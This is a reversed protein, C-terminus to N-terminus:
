RTYIKKHQFFEIKSDDESKKMNTVIVNHVALGMCALTETSKLVLDESLSPWMEFLKQDENLNKLMLPFTCEEAINLIDYWVIFEKIHQEM